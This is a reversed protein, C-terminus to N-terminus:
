CKVLCLPGEASDDECPDLVLEEMNIASIDTQTYVLKWKEIHGNADSGGTGFADGGCVFLNDDPDVLMHGASLSTCLYQGQTSFNLSGSGEIAGDIQDKTFYYIDGTTGDDANYGIGCFLNGYNDFCIGSSAGPVDTIIAQVASEPDTTDIAGVGSTYSPGPWSGADILLYRNDRWAASYYHTDYAYVGEHPTGSEDILLPPSDPDLISVPFVLLARPTSSWGQGLAVKEKNPSLVLFSPDTDDPLTAVVEFSNTGRATERYIKKGTVVLLRGDLLSDFFIGWSSDNEDYGGVPMSFYGDHLSGDHYNMTELPSGTEWRAEAGGPDGQCPDNANYALIIYYAAQAYMYVVVFAPNALNPKAPTPKPRPEPKPEESPPGGPCWYLMEMIRSFRIQVESHLHHNYEIRVNKM